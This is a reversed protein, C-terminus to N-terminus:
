QDAHSLLASGNGYRRIGYIYTPKLKIGAWREALPGLAAFTKKIDNMDLSLYSSRALELVEKRGDKSEIMVQNNMFGVVLRDNELRWNEPKGKRQLKQIFHQYLSEPIRTMEFGDETFKPIYPLSKYLIHNLSIFFSRQEQNFEAESCINLKFGFPDTFTDGLGGAERLVEPVSKDGSFLATCRQRCTSLMEPPNMLCEYKTVSCSMM